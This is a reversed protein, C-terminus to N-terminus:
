KSTEVEGLMNLLVQPGPSYRVWRKTNIMISPMSFSYFSGLYSSNSSIRCNALLAHHRHNAWVPLMVLLWLSYRYSGRWSTADDRSERLSVQPKDVPLGTAVTSMVAASCTHGALLVVHGWLGPQGPFHSPVPGESCWKGRSPKQPVMGEKPWSRVNIAWKLKEQSM